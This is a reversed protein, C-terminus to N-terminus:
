NAAPSLQVHLSITRAPASPHPVAFFVDDRATQKPWRYSWALLAVGGHRVVAISDPDHITLQRGDLDHLYELAFFTPKRIGQPNFIGFDGEFPLTQPGDEELAVKMDDDLLGHFRMYAIGCDRHAEALQRMTEPNMENAAHDGGICINLPSRFVKGVHQTNLSIVRAADVRAAINFSLAIILLLMSKFPFTDRFCRPVANLLM